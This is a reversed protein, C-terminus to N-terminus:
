GRYEFEIDDTFCITWAVRSNGGGADLSLFFDQIPACFEILNNQTFKLWQFSGNDIFTGGSGDANMKSFHIFGRGQESGGGGPVGASVLLIKRAPKALHIPIDSLNFSTNFDATDFTLFEFQNANAARCIGSPLSPKQTPFTDVISNIEAIPDVQNRIGTATPDSSGSGRNFAM